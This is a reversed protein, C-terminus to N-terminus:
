YIVEVGLKHFLYTFSVNTTMLVACLSNRFWILGMSLPMYNVALFVLASPEIGKRSM